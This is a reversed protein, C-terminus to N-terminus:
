WIRKIRGGAKDIKQLLVALRRKNLETGVFSRGARYASLGVLGQGMCFDGFITYSETQGVDAIVTAEDIGDYQQTTPGAHSGRLIYCRNRKYYTTQWRQLYPYLAGLQNQWRDVAQFGVELYCTMPNVDQIRQFLIREFKNFDQVYDTRGAKTYFSTLNGKNWPPDVFLLDAAFMFEPLPDFINHVAVKSGNDLGWIEGTEIPFQEWANGYKWKM